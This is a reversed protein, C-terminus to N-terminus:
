CKRVTESAFDLIGDVSAEAYVPPRKLARAIAFLDKIRHNFGHKVVVMFAGVIDNHPLINARREIEDLLVERIDIAPVEAENTPSQVQKWVTSEHINTKM